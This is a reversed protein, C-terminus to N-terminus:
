LGAIEVAIKGQLHVNAADFEAQNEPTVRRVRSEVSAEVRARTEPDLELEDLRDDVGRWFARHAREREDVYAERIGGLYAVVRQRPSGNVRRSEVLVATLLPSSKRRRVRGRSQWRVYM